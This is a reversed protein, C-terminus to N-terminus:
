QGATKKPSFNSRAVSSPEGHGVNPLRLTSFSFNHHRVFFAPVVLPLLSLRQSHIDFRRSSGDRGCYPGARQGMCRDM